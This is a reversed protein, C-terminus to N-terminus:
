GPTNKSQFLDQIADLIDEAVWKKSKLEFKLVKNDKFLFTTKNTDTGFGAGPDQLSNLVIMDFNKSVLKEQAYAEGSVSELAFGIHWQHSKKRKGLHGAIDPNKILTISMEDGAKKIKEPALNSPRYDAVAAAFIFIDASAHLKEAIEMMDQASIVSVVQIADSSPRLSTPGLIITVQAGRTAAAEAIAIGMKGTSANGIFRVPDLYEHTPGATIIIKKSAWDQNRNSAWKNEIFQVIDEPEAMRGEGQLGSALYGTDVPIIEVGRQALQALNARTAPHHWMDVDMAPALYVPARAALYAAGLLDDALGHALKAITHATAPAILLLDAWLALEIHNNWSQHSVLESQAPYHSIAEFSLPNVFQSAAPTLIVRVEAKKKQLARLLYVAKYAAISGSVGLLIKKGEISSM